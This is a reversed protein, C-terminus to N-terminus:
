FSEMLDNLTIPKRVANSFGEHFSVWIRGGSSDGADKAKGKMATSKAIASADLKEAPPVSAPSEFVETAIPRGFFDRKVKVIPGSNSDLKAEILEPALAGLLMGGGRAQRIMAAQLAKEKSLEQDLVQRVAFRTPLTTTTSTSKTGTNPFAHYTSLADIPSTFTLQVREELHFDFKRSWESRTVGQYQLM